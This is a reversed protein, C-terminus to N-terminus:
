SSSSVVPNSAFSALKQNITVPLTPTFSILPQNFLEFEILLNKGILLAILGLIQFSLPRWSLRGSLSV